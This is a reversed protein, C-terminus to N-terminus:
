QYIHSRSLQFKKFLSRIKTKANINKNKIEFTDKKIQHCDIKNYYNNTILVFDKLISDCKVFRGKLNYQTQLFYSFKNNIEIKFKIFPHKRTRMLNLCIMHNLHEIIEKFQGNKRVM